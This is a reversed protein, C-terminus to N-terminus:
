RRRTALSPAHTAEALAALGPPKRVRGGLLILGTPPLGAVREAISGLSKAGVLGACAVQALVFALPNCRGVPWGAPPRRASSPKILRILNRLLRTCAVAPSVIGSAVM